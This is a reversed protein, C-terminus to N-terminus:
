GESIKLLDAPPTQSGREIWEDVLGDFDLGWLFAQGAKGPSFLGAFKRKGGEVYTDFDVM